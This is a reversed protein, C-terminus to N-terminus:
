RNACLYHHLAHWFNKVAKRTAIQEATSVDSNFAILYSIERTNGSPLKIYTKQPADVRSFIISSDTFEQWSTFIIEHGFFYWNNTRIGRNTVIFGDSGKRSVTNDYALLITEDLPVKCSKKLAALAKVRDPCLYKRIEAGNGSAIFRKALQDLIQDTNQSAPLSDSHESRQIDSLKRLAERDGSAAAKKLWQKAQAKDKPADKGQLTQDTNQSVPLSDPRESRQIDSLKRLAERDGSAAAKKLWQKAQAKDKPEGKGQITYVSGNVLQTREKQGEAARRINQAKSGQLFKKWEEEAEVKEQAELEQRAKKKTELGQRIKEETERRKQESEQYVNYMLAGQAVALELDAACLAPKGTIKRAMEQVLPIRSTGGVMLVASIESPAAGAEDLARRCTQLTQGVLSAIMGNFRELTLQYHVDDMGVEIYEEFSNADSLHHKAKVALENLQSTFRM